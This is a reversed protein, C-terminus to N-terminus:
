NKNKLKVDLVPISNANISIGEILGNSDLYFLRMDGFETIYGFPQVESDVNLRGDFTKMDAESYPIRVALNSISGYSQQAQFLDGDEEAEDLFKKMKMAEIYIVDSLKGVVFIPMSSLNGKEVDFVKLLKTNILNGQPSYNIQLESNIFRRMFMMENHFYFVTVDDSLSNYVTSINRIEPNEIELNGSLDGEQFFSRHIRVDKAVYFWTIFASGLKIFLKNNKIIFLKLSGQNDKYVSYRADEFSSDMNKVNGVFNFRIIKVDEDKNKAKEKAIDIERIFFLSSSDGDVFYSAENRLNVGKKSYIGNVAFIDDDKSDVGISDPPDYELFSDECMFDELNVSRYMLFSNNLVYFLHVTSGFGDKVTFPSSAKEGKALRIIGQYNIWDRGDDYSIAVSINNKNDQYFVAIRNNLPDISVSFQKGKVLYKSLVGEQVGIGRISKIDIGEINDTNIEVPGNKYFRTDVAVKNGNDIYLNDISTDSGSFYLSM